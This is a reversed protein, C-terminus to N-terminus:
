DIIQGVHTSGAIFRHYDQHKDLLPDLKEIYHATTTANVVWLGYIHTSSENAGEYPCNALLFLSRRGLFFISPPSIDSHMKKITLKIKIKKKQHLLQENPM